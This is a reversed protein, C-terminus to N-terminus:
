SFTGLQIFDGFFNNPTKTIKNNKEDVFYGYSDSSNPNRLKFLMGNPFKVHSYEKISIGWRSMNSDGGYKIKGTSGDSQTDNVYNFTNRLIPSQLTEKVTFKTTKQIEKEVKHAAEPETDDSEKKSPLFRYLLILTIGILLTFVAWLYRNRLILYGFTLLFLIGYVLFILENM